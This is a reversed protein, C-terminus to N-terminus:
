MISSFMAQNILSTYLIISSGFLFGNSKKSAIKFTHNYNANEIINIQTKGSRKYIYMTVAIALIDKSKRNCM